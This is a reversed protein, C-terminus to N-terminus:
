PRDDVMAGLGSGKYGETGGLPLLAGGKRYAKPDTTHRGDADIIWGKPIEEGRAVAFIQLAQFGPQGLLALGPAKGTAKDSAPM